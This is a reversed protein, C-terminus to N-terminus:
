EKKNHKQPLLFPPRPVMKRFLISLWVQTNFRHLNLNRYFRIAGYSVQVMVSMDANSDDHQVYGTQKTM